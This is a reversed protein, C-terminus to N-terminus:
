MHKRVFELDEATDVGLPVKDVIDIAIQMGYELARLQELKEIKELPSAPLAVFKELATRTYAYLGIHHYCPGKGYPVPSRSFYIARNNITIVAKVVNPNHREEESRIPAALTSIDISPNDLLKLALTPLHPDLMPLDGQVNIIRDFKRAPDIKQLAEYIRDTGSPHAPDTLVAEGGANRVASAIEEEACAIYVPAINAALAREMVWLIMPKGHIDALPKGPLRTSDMRAPIIIIPTTM